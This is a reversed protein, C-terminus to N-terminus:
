ATACHWSPRTSTPPGVPLPLDLVQRRQEILEIAFARQLDDGKFVRDFKDVAALAAQDILPLDACLRSKAWPSRLAQALVRIHDHDAFQAIQLGNAQRQACGFGPMQHQCPACREATFLM